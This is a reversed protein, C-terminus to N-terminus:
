LQVQQLTSADFYQMVQRGDATTVFARLVTGWEEVATATVGQSQLQYLVYDADFSATSEIAMAPIAVGALAAATAVAIVSKKIM